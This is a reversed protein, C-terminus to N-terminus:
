VVSSVRCSQWLRFCVHVVFATNAHMTLWYSGLHTHIHTHTPPHTVFCRKCAKCTLALWIILDSWLEAVEAFTHTPTPTPTYTHTHTHTHTGCFHLQTRQCLMCSPSRTQWTTSMGADPRWPSCGRGCSACFVFARCSFLGTHMMKQILKQLLKQIFSKLKCCGRGQSGCLVFTRCSFLGTHMM